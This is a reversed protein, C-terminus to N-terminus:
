WQLLPTKLQLGGLHKYGTSPPRRCFPNLLQHGYAMMVLEQGFGVHRHALIMLDEKPV